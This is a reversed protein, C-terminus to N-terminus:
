FAQPNLRLHVLNDDFDLDGGGHWDEFGIANGGFSRFHSIGDRNADDYFFYTQTGLEPNNVVAM